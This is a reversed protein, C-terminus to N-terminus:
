KQYLLCNKIGSSAALFVFTKVSSRNFDEFRSVEFSFPTLDLLTYKLLPFDTFCVFFIVAIGEDGL